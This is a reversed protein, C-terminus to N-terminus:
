DFRGQLRWEGNQLDRYIWFRCGWQDEVQYYDRRVLGTRWWGTELREPGWARQVHHTGWADRFTQPPGEPTVDPVELPTAVEQLHCPWARPPTDEHPRTAPGRKKVAAGHAARPPRHGTLPIWRCAREPLVEALPQVGLVAQPGLRNSLSEVLQSVSRAPAPGVERLCNSQVATIAATVTARLQLHHVPSSLEQRELPLDLLGCFQDPRISPQFLGVELSRHSHDQLRLELTLHLAGKGQQWLRQALEEALSQLFGQLQSRCTTPYELSCGVELRPAQRFAVLPEAVQGVAQDMRRILADGFRTALGQRPLQWLQRIWTVGLGHLQEIAPPSLRLSEVPLNALATHLEESSVFRQWTEPSEGQPSAGRARCPIGFHAIAWAAGWTPAVAAQGRLGRHRCDQFLAQVLRREGGWRPASGALDLWLASPPVEEELGLSPSFSEWDGALDELAARDALPDYAAGHLPRVKKGGCTRPLALAEVVPMGVRVGLDRASSSAYAVVEGRRADRVHLLIPQHRLAPQSRLLCQLPWQPFWVCLFRPDEPRM